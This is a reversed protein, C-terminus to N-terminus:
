GLSMDLLYVRCNCRFVNRLVSTLNMMNYPDKLHEYSAYNGTQLFIKVHDPLSEVQMIDFFELHAALNLFQAQKLYGIVDRWLGIVDQYTILHNEDDQFLNKGGPSQVAMTDGISMRKDARGVAQRDNCEMSGDFLHVYNATNVLGRHNDRNENDTKRLDDVVLQINRAVDLLAEDRSEWRVVPKGNAPLPKLDAFLESEWLTPRLVIPIIRCKAVKYKQMALSVGINNCDNSAIFDPSIFLLIIQAQEIYQKIVQHKNRGAQAESGPRIIVDGRKQVPVLHKELEKVLVEDELAYLCFIEINTKIQNTM